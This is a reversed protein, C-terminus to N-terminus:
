NGILRPFLLNWYQRVEYSFINRVFTNFYVELEHYIHEDDKLFRDRSDITKLDEMESKDELDLGLAEDVDISNCEM